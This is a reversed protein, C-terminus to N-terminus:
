YRRMRALFRVAIAWFPAAIAWSPRELNDSHAAWILRKPASALSVLFCDIPNNDDMISDMTRFSKWVVTVSQLDLLTSSNFILLINVM